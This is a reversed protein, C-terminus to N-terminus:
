KERQGIQRWERSPMSYYYSYVLIGADDNEMIWATRYEEPHESIAKELADKALSLDRCAFPHEFTKFHANYKM